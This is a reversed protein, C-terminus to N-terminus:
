ILATTVEVPNALTDRLPSRKELDSVLTELEERSANSSQIDVSVQIGQAGNRVTPDIGLFGNLDIDFNLDMGVHSLEVNRTAAISSLTVMYCGALAKLAYEAPSVGTDAGMLPVPEDSTLTFKARRSDDTAGAQTLPGTSSKAAVGGASESTMNFTIHGLSPNARVADVTDSIQQADAYPKTDTATTM